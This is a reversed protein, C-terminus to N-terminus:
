HEPLYMGTVLSIDYNTVLCINRTKCYTKFSSTKLMVVELRALRRWSMNALCRGFVDKLRRWSMKLVEELVDKLNIQLVDEELGKWSSKLFVDQLCNKLGNQLSRPFCFSTVSFVDEVRRWCMKVLVFTQQFIELSSCGTQFFVTFRFSHM